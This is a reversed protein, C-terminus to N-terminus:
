GIPNTLVHTAVTEVTVCGSGTTFTYWEGSQFSEETGGCLQRGEKQGQTQAEKLEVAVESLRIM